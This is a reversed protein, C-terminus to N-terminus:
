AQRGRPGCSERHRVAAVFGSRGRRPSYEAAAVSRRSSRPRARCAPVRVSRTLSRWGRAGRFSVTIIFRGFPLRVNLTRRRGTVKVTYSHGRESATASLRGSSQRVTVTLSVLRGHRQARSLALRPTRKGPNGPNGPGVPAGPGATHFSWSVPGGPWGGTVSVTYTTPPSLPRDPIFADQLVCGSLPSGGAPTLTIADTYTFSPPDYTVITGAPASMPHGAQECADVPNPYEGEVSSAQSSRASM